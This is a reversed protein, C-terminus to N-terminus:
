IHSIVVSDNHELCRFFTFKTAVMHNFVEEFNWLTDFKIKCIAMNSEVRKFGISDDSILIGTFLTPTFSDLELFAWTTLKNSYKEILMYNKCYLLNGLGNYGLKSSIFGDNNFVFRTEHQYGSSDRSVVLTKNRLNYNVFTDKLALSMGICNGHLLYFFVFSMICLRYKRILGMYNIIKM